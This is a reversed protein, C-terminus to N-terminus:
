PTPRQPQGGETALKGATEQRVEEPTRERVGDDTKEASLRDPELEGEREEFTGVGGCNPCTESREEFVQGCSSCQYYTGTAM